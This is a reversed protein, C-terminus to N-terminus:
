EDEDPEPRDRGREYRDAWPGLIRRRYAVFVVLVGITALLLVLSFGRASVTFARLPSAGAAGAPVSVAQLEHTGEPVGQLIVATRAGAAVTATMSTGGTAPDELQAAVGDLIVTFTVRGPATGRLEVVVRVDPDSTAGPAPSTVELTPRVSQARAPAPSGLVVPIGLMVLALLRVARM